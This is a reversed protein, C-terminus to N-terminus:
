LFLFKIAFFVAQYTVVITMPTGWKHGEKMWWGIMVEGKSIFYILYGAIIHIKKVLMTKAPDHRKSEINFKGIFGVIQIFVIMVLIFLGVVSHAKAIPGMSLFCHSFLEWRGYIMVIVIAFISALNFIGFSSHILLYKSWNKWYRVM